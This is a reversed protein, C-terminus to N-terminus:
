QDEKPKFVTRPCDGKLIDYLKYSVNSIICPIGRSNCIEAAELKSKIGGRGCKSDGLNDYDERKFSNAYPIVKGDKYIGDKTTFIVLLDNELRCTLNAALIDNDGFAIEDTMVADNENFIPICRKEFISHYNTLLNSLEEGPKLNNKTVLLQAAKYMHNSFGNMWSHMLEPQGIASYLQNEAMTCNKKNFEQMSQKGRLIAGSSVLTVYTGKERFEVVDDSIKNIKNLDIYDYKSLSETGVKIVIKKRDSFDQNVM